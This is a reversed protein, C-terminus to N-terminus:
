RQPTAPALTTHGNPISALGYARAAMFSHAVTPLWLSLIASKRRGRKELRGAAWIEFALIPTSFTYAQARSPRSGLLPNGERCTNERLCARTGEVDAVVSAALLATAIIVLPNKMATRWSTERPCPKCGSSIHHQSEEVACPKGPADACPVALVKAVPGDPLITAASRRGAIPAFPVPMQQPEVLTSGVDISETPIPERIVRSVQQTKAPAAFVLLSFAAMTLTKM